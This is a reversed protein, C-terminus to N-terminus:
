DAVGGLEVVAVVDAVSAEPASAPTARSAAGYCRKKELQAFRKAPGTNLGRLGEAHVGVFCEEFAQAGAIDAGEVCEVISM